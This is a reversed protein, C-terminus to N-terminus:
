LVSLDGTHVDPADATTDRDGATMCCIVAEYVSSYASSRCSLDPFVEFTQKTYFHTVHASFDLPIFLYHNIFAQQLCPRGKDLTM